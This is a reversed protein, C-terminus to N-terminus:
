YIVFFFVQMEITDAKGGDLPTVKKALLSLTNVGSYPYCTFILTRRFMTPSSGQRKISRSGLFTWSLM